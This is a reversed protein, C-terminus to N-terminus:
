ENLFNVCKIITETSNQRFDKEWITLVMINNKRLTDLKQKDYDWFTEATVNKLFPHPTDSSKFIDPNAHFLDGNFEICKNNDKIFFDLFYRDFGYEKNLSAFYIEKFKNQILLYIEKFLKQSLISHSAQHRTANHMKRMREYFKQEGKEKGYRLIFGHLTNLEKLKKRNSSHRILGQEKGYLEIQRELSHNGRNRECFNKYKQTGIEIGYKRVFNELTCRKKKNAEVYKQKGLENGYKRIFNKINGSSNKNKQEFRKTGIETGYKLIYNELSNGRQLNFPMSQFQKFRELTNELNYKCSYALFKIESPKLNNSYYLEKIIPCPQKNNCIDIWEKRKEIGKKYFKM